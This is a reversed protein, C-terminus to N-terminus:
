KNITVEIKGSPKQKEIYIKLLNNKFDFATEVENVLVRKPSKNLWASFTGSGRLSIKVVSNNNDISKITAPANYKNTLGIAAFDHEIPILYYLRYGLRPLEIKESDNMSMIKAEHSFYEYALFKTGKLGYVDSPKFSGAVKDTDAMNWIGLLGTEGVMNFAKFPKADQVQFLCDETPKL